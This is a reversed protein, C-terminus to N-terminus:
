AANGSSIDRFSGEVQDVEEPSIQSKAMGAQIVETFDESTRLAVVQLWALKRAAGKEPIEEGIAALGDSWDTGEVTETGEPVEVVDLGFMLVLGLIKQSIMIGHQEVAKQYFPDNPNEEKRKRPPDGVMVEVIPPQPEPYKSYLQQIYVSPVAKARVVVGTSLIITEDEARRAIEELEQPDVIPEPAYQRVVTSDAGVEGQM